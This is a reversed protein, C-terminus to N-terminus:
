WLQEIEGWEKRERAEWYGGTYEWEVSGDKGSVPRFWKPRYEISGREREQRRERQAQEVRSKEEDAWDVDGDELARQDPRFRSDTPPIWDRIDDTIENLGTAFHTFGYYDPADNPFPTARWLVHLHNGSADLLQSFGTHWRGRLEIDAGSNPQSSTPSSVIKGIVEDKNTGWFGGEKFELTCQLSSSSTNITMFGCHELYKEGAILNRM